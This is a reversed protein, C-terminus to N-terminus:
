PKELLWTHIHSNSWSSPQSRFFQHKQITAISFVGSLGKSQLSILGTLGLPFWSQINMSLVSASASARISQSGSAFFQSMPFSGSAPFSQLCSFPSVSSSIALYWWQSVPHLKVLSQAITFSLSAQHSCDMLDCLTSCSKTVSCCCCSDLPIKSYDSIGCNQCKESSSTGGILMGWIM